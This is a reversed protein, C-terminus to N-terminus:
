VGFKYTFRSRFCPRPTWFPPGWLPLYGLKYTFRSRFYPIGGGLLPGWWTCLELHPPRWVGPIQEHGRFGHIEPYKVLDSSGWFPRFGPYKLINPIGLIHTCICIHGDRFPWILCIDRYIRIIGIHAYIGINPSDLPVWPDLYTTEM